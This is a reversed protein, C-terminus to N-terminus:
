GKRNVNNELRKLIEILRQIWKSFFFPKDEETIKSQKNYRM